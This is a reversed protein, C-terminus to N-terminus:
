SRYWAVWDQVTRYHSGVALAVEAMKWGIRLLWLAHLQMRVMGDREAQYRAKMAEPVDEARWEVRFPRGRM